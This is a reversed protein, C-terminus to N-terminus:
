ILNGLWRINDINYMIRRVSKTNRVYQVGPILIINNRNHGALYVGNPGRTVVVRRKRNEIRVHGEAAADNYDCSTTNYHRTGDERKTERNLTDRCRVDKFIFRVNKTCHFENEDIRSTMYTPTSM